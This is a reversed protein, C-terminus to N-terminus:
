KGKQRDGLVSPDSGGCTWRRREKGVPFNRHRRTREAAYRHTRAADHQIKRGALM